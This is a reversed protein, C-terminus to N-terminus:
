RVKVKARVVDTVGPVAALSTVLALPVSLRAFRRM